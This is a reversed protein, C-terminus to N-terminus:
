RIARLLDAAASGPDCRGAVIDDLRREFLDNQQTLKVQATQLLESLRGALLARTRERQRSAKLVSNADLYHVFASLVADLEATGAGSSAQTKLVPVQWGGHDSHMHREVSERLQAVVRDAGPADCKNVVFIDAIELLGSKMAQVADGGVPTQVVVVTDAHHLIDIENQGVGVTEVLIRDVGMADLVILADGAASSLGGLCGRASMSRIFVGPDTNHQGMRVRDGLIAGGSRASSPDVALVAITEGKARWHAILHDALTSKGAGPPGTIGIVPTHRRRAYLSPLAAAVDAHGDEIHSILRGVARRDGAIVRQALAVCSLHGPPQTM